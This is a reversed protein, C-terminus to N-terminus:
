NLVRINSLLYDLNALEAESLVQGDEAVLNGNNDSFPGTFIALNGKKIEDITNELNLRTKDNINYSSTDIQVFNDIVTGVYRANDFNDDLVSQVQEIYFNTLDTTMASLYTSTSSIGSPSFGIVKVGNDAAEILAINDEYCSAIVDCGNFVLKSVSANLRSRSPSDGAFDLDVTADPNSNYVGLAFANINILVANSDNPAILGIQNNTTSSGAVIGLLYEAEYQRATYNKINDAEITGNYVVFDIDRYVSAARAVQTEYENSSIFILKANSDVMEYIVSELNDGTVSSKSITEVEGNFHKVMNLRAEEQSENIGQDSISGTYIFGVTLSVEQSSCGSLFPVLLLLMLLLIRKFQM